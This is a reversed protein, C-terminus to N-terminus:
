FGLSNVMATALPTPDVKVASPRLWTISPVKSQHLLWPIQLAERIDAKASPTGSPELSELKNNNTSAPSTSTTLSDSPNATHEGDSGLGPTTTMHVERFQQKVPLTLLLSTMWSVIENPLPVIHSTLIEDSLHMDRSLSDAVENDKGPFWQSYDRIEQNMYRRAHSRAVEIRAAAQLPDDEERFNSKRMWGASTTSDTMSLACDGKSLRGAIIDIWPTIVAAM